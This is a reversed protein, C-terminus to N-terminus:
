PCGVGAVHEMLADTGDGFRFWQVYEKGFCHNAQAFRAVCGGVQCTPDYSVQFKLNNPLQLGPMFQAPAGALPGAVAQSTLAFAVPLNSEDVTGAESAERAHRLTTSASAYAASARYIAFASIGLKALVGILAITVLLEILTFGKQRKM